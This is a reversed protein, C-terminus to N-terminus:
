LTEEDARARTQALDSVVPAPTWDRPRTRPPLTFDHSTLFGITPDKCDYSERRETTAFVDGKPHDQEPEQSDRNLAVTFTHGLVELTLRMAITM